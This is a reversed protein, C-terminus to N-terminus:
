KTPVNVNGQNLIAVKPYKHLKSLVGAAFCSSTMDRHYIIQTKLPSLEDKARAEIEDAPINIAGPIHGDNFIDRDNVDIITIDANDQIAKDLTSSNVRTVEGIREPLADIDINLTDYIQFQAKVDPEGQWHRTVVGEDNVIFIGPTAMIGISKLPVQYIEHIKVGISRLYEKGANDPESFVAVTKAINSKEIKEILCRFFPAGNTCYQCHPSLAFVISQKNKSWDIAV